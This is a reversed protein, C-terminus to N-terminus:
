EQLNLQTAIEEALAERELLTAANMGILAALDRLLTKFENLSVHRHLLALFLVDAAQMTRVNYAAAVGRPKKDHLLTKLGRRAACAIVECEGTGLRPDANLTSTLQIEQATLALRVIIQEEIAKAIRNAPKRRRRGAEVTEQYVAPPIAVTGVVQALFELQNMRAFYILPSADSIVAIKM